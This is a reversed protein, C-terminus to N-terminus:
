LDYLTAPTFGCPKEQTIDTQYNFNKNRTTGRRFCSLKRQCEKINFKTNVNLQHVIGCLDPIKGSQQAPRGQHGHKLPTMGGNLAMTLRSLSSPLRDEDVRLESM